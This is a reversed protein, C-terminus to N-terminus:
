FCVGVAGVINQRRYADGPLEMYFDRQIVARIARENRVFQGFFPEGSKSTYLLCGKYLTWPEAGFQRQLSHAIEFLNMSNFASYLGKYCEYNTCSDLMQDNVRQNYDGHLMEGVLFFEPKLSATFSKLKRLFDQDLCYAVDLRLGDIDFEEVWGRICSFLYEVVADNRLNLKVLEFHGEWGRDRICM